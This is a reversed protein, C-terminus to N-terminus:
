RFPPLKFLKLVFVLMVIIAVVLLSIFILRFVRSLIPPSLRWHLGFFVPFATSNPFASPLPFFHPVPKWVRAEVWFRFLHSRQMESRGNRALACGM